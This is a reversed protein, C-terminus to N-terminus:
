LQLAEALLWWLHERHAVVVKPESMAWLECSGETLGPFRTSTWTCVKSRRQMEGTISPQGRHITTAKGELNVCTAGTGGSVGSPLKSVGDHAQGHTAHTM